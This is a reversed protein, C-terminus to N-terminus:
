LRIKRQEPQWKAVNLHVKGIGMSRIWKAATDLTSWIKLKGKLTHAPKPEGGAHVMVYLTSGEGIIEIKKIAGAEILARLIKENMFKTGNNCDPM